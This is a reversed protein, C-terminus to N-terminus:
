LEFNYALLMQCAVPNELCELVTKLIYEGM